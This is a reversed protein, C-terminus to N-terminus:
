ALWQPRCSARKAISPYSPMTRGHLMRPEDEEAGVGQGQDRDAVNGHDQDLTDEVGHHPRALIVVAIRDPAKQSVQEGVRRGQEDARQDRQEGIPQDPLMCPKEIGAQGCPRPHCREEDVLGGIMEAVPDGVARAKEPRPVARVMRGLFQVECCRRPAEGKAVRQGGQEAQGGGQQAHVREDEKGHQEGLVKPPNEVVRPQDVLHSRQLADHRRGGIVADMVAAIRAIDVLIVALHQHEPVPQKPRELGFILLRVEAEDLRHRGVIRQDDVERAPHPEVPAHAARRIEARRQLIQPSRRFPVM